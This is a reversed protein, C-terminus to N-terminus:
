PKNGELVMRKTKNGLDQMNTAQQRTKCPVGVMKQMSEGNDTTFM